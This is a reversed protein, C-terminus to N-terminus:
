QELREELVDDSRQRGDYDGNGRFKAAGPNYSLVLARDKDGQRYFHGITEQGRFEGQKFEEARLALYAGVVVAAKKPDLLDDLHYDKLVDPYAKKADLFAGKSVQYPGYTGNPVASEPLNLLRDQFWDGTTRHRYEYLGIRSIVDSSAGIEAFVPFKKFADEGAEFIEKEYESAPAREAGRESADSLGSADVLVLGPM